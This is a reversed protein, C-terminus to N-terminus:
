SSENRAEGSGNSPPAEAPAKAVGVLAPRLCREGIVYGAQM